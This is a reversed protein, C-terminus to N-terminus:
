CFQVFQRCITSLLRSCGLTFSHREAAGRVRTEVCVSCPLFSVSTATQSRQSFRVYNFRHNGICRSVFRTTHHKPQPLLTLSTDSIFVLVIFDLTQICRVLGTFPAERLLLLSQDLPARALDSSVLHPSQTHFHRQM